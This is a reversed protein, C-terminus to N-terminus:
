ALLVGGRRYISQPRITAALRMILFRTVQTYVDAIQTTVQDGLAIPGKFIGDITVNM